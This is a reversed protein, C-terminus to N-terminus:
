ELSVSQAQANIQPIDFSELLGFCFLEPATNVGLNKEIVEKL